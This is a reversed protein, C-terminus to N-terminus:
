HQRLLDDEQFYPGHPTVTWGLQLFLLEYAQSNTIWSARESVDSFGLPDRLKEGRLVSRTIKPRGERPSMQSSWTLYYFTFISKLGRLIKFAQVMIVTDPMSHIRFLYEVTFIFNNLMEIRRAKVSRLKEGTFLVYTSKLSSSLPQERMKIDTPQKWSCLKVYSPPVSEWSSKMWTGWKWPWSATDWHPEFALVMFVTEQDPSREAM